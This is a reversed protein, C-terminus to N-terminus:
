LIYILTHLSCVAILTVLRTWYNYRLVQTDNQCSHGGYRSATEHYKRTNRVEAIFLVRLVPLTHTLVVRIHCTCPSLRRNYCSLCHVYLTVNLCTWSVVTATSSCYTNCIPIHTHTHTNTKQVNAPLRKHTLAHTHTHVGARAHAEARTAKSIRCAVRRRITMQLREPEVM